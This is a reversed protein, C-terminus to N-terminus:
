RDDASYVAKSIKDYRLSIKWLKLSPRLVSYIGPLTDFLWWPHDKFVTKQIDNM